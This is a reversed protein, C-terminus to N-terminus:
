LPRAIMLLLAALPVVTALSGFIVWYRERRWYGPPIDRRLKFRRAERAQRIQLPVLAAVWLLGSLGFLWQSWLLWASGTLDVEGTLAMGVGGAILLLAGGATFVLDTLTVQRQAFAIVGADRTRNAMVKWWATVVLNGMFLIVGVIHLGKLATYLDM